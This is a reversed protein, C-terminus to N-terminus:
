NQEEESLFANKIKKWAKKSICSPQIDQRILWARCAHFAQQKASDYSYAHLYRQYVIIRPEGPKNQWRLKIQWTDKRCMSSWCQLSVHKTLHCVDRKWIHNNNADM